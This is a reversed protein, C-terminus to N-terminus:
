KNIGIEDSNTSKDGRYLDLRRAIAQGESVIYLGRKGYKLNVAAALAIQLKFFVAFHRTRCRKPWSRCRLYYGLGHVFLYKSQNELVM